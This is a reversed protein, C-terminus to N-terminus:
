PCLPRQRSVEAPALVLPLQADVSGAPDPAPFAVARAARILCERLSADGTSDSVACAHTIRGEPGIRMALEVRGGAAGPGQATSVCIEAAQRLPGLSGVIARPALDGVADDEGFAPLGDPCLGESSGGAQDAPAAPLRTGPALAVTLAVRGSLEDPIVGLLDALRSLLVGAEAAVFLAGISPDLSGRAEDDTRLGRQASPETSSRVYVGQDTLVWVVAPERRPPLTTTVAVFSAHAPDGSGYAGWRSLVNVPGADNELAEDLDDEAPPLPRVAVALDAELRYGRRLLCGESSDQDRRDDLARAAGLLDEYTADSRLRRLDQVPPPTREGPPEPADVPPSTGGCALSVITFTLAYLPRVIAAYRRASRADM